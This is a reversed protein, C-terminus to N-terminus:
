DRAISALRLMHRVTSHATHFRRTIVSLRRWRVTLKGGRLSTQHQAGTELLDVVFAKLGLMAVSAANDLLRHCGKELTAIQWFPKGSNAAGVALVSRAFCPARNTAKEQLCGVMAARRHGGAWGAVLLLPRQQGRDVNGFFDSKGDRLPLDDQGDGLTKPQVSAVRIVSHGAALQQAFERSPGPRAELGFRNAPEPASWREAVTGTHCGGHHRRNLSM